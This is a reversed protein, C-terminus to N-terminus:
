GSADADPHDPEHIREFPSTTDERTQRVRVGSNIERGDAARILIPEFEVMQHRYPGNEPTRTIQAHAINRTITNIRVREASMGTAAIRIGGLLQNLRLNEKAVDM